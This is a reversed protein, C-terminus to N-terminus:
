SRHSLWWFLGGVLLVLLPEIPARFRMNAYLFINQLITLALVLYVALLQRHWRRWLIIIGAAAFLFILPSIDNLMNRVLLSSFREPFENIPLGPEFTEPQWMHQWHYWWLLPVAQRHENMWRLATQVDRQEDDPTYAYADHGAVTIRPRVLDRSVWFGPGTFPMNHLVTDNYAGLLVDGMGSAVLVFRHTVTFNRYTWPSILALAIATSLAVIRLMTPWPIRRFCVLICGWLWLVGLLQVGNPRTLAALGLLLGSALSWFLIHCPLIKGRQLRFLSYTFATLLFTYLSESFLWGDYLFLGPYCAALLGTFWAIRTGFLDLAWRALIACTGAGIVCLLLRPGLPNPGTLAYLPAMLLPWLPARSVTPHFTYLSFYHQQVLHLALIHYLAADYKPVYGRAATVNYLLRVVVAVIFTGAVPHALLPRVFASKGWHSVSRALARGVNQPAILM